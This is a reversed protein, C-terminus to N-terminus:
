AVGQLRLQQLQLEMAERSTAWIGVLGNANYQAAGIGPIGWNMLKHEDKGIIGGSSSSGVPSVMTMYGDPFTVQSGELNCGPVGLESMTVVELARQECQELDEYGPPVGVGGSPFCGVLALAAIGTFAVALTRPSMGEPYALPSKLQGTDRYAGSM